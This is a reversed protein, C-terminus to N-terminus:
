DFARSSYIYLDTQKHIQIYKLIKRHIERSVKESNVNNRKTCRHNIGCFYMVKAVRTM